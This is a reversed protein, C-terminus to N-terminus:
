RWDGVGVLGAWRAPHTDGGARRTRDLLRRTAEWVADDTSRGDQFRARYLEAVWRRAVRDSVPWLSM